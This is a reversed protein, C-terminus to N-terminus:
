AEDAEAGAPERGISWLAYALRAAEPEREGARGDGAAEELPPEEHALVWAALRARAGSDGRSCAQSVECRACTRHERVLEDDVLRPFFAGAAYARGLTATAGAFAAALVASGAPVRFVRLEPALRPGLFVYRGEAGPGAALAYAGAQLARGRAVRRLFHEERKAETKHEAFPRGTKFDTVLLGDPGREVRDAVFRVRSLTPPADGGSAPPGTAALALEGEVEAGLVAHDRARAQADLARAVDLLPLAQEVMVRALGDLVLGEDRLVERAARLALAELADADPWGRAAGPRAPPDDQATTAVLAALTPAGAGTAGAVAHLVAHVLNGVMRADVSPLTDLPDPAPELALVRTLFTRWGCDALGELTTM